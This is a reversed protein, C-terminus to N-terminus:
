YFVDLCNLYKRRLVAAQGANQKKTCFSFNQSAVIALQWRLFKWDFLELTRQALLAQQHIVEQGLRRCTATLFKMAAVHAQLSWTQQETGTMSATASVTRGSAGIELFVLWCFSFYILSDDCLWGRGGFLCVVFLCPVTRAGM